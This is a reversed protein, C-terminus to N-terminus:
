TTSNGSPFCGTEIGPERMGKRKLVFFYEEVDQGPQWHLGSVEQMASFTDMPPDLVASLGTLAGDLTTAKKVIDRVAGRDAFDSNILNEEDDKNLGVEELWPVDRRGQAQMTYKDLDCPENNVMFINKKERQMGLIPKM